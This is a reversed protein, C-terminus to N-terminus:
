ALVGDFLTKAHAMNQAHSAAAEKEAATKAKQRADKEAKENAAFAALEADVAAKEAKEAAKAADSEAKAQAREQAKQNSHYAALAATVASDHKIVANAEFEGTPLYTAVIVVQKDTWDANAGTLLADFKFTGISNNIVAQKVEQARETPTMVQKGGLRLQEVGGNAELFAELGDAPINKLLAARLAISYASVRRRDVGFVCKVVRTMDHTSQSFSYGREKIFSVLAQTHAARVDKSSHQKMVLYYSYAKKLIADKRRNSAAHETTEWTIRSSELSKLEDIPMVPAPNVPTDVAILNVPYDFNALNISATNFSAAPAATAPTLVNQM